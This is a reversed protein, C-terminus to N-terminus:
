KWEKGESEEIGTGSKGRWKWKNEEVNLRYLKRISGTHTAHIAEEQLFSISGRGATM